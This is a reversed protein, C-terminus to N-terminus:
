NVFFFIRKGAVTGFHENPLYEPIHEKILELNEKNVAFEVDKDLGCMFEYFKWKPVSGPVRNIYYEINM